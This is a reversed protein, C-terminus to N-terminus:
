FLLFVGSYILLFGARIKPSVNSCKRLFKPIIECFKPSSRFFPLSFELLNQLFQSFIEYCNQLDKKQHTLNLSFVLDRLIREFNWLIRGRIRLCMLSTKGTNKWFRWFNKGIKMFYGKCKEYLKRGWRATCINNTRSPWIEPVPRM